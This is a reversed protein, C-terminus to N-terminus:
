LVLIIAVTLGVLVNVMEDIKSLKFFGKDISGNKLIRNVEMNSLMLSVAFKFVLAGLIWYDFGCVYAISIYIMSLITVLLFNSRKVSSDASETEKALAKFDQVKKCVSEYSALVQSLNYGALIVSAVLM